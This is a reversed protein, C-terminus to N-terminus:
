CVESHHHQLSASIQPSSSLPTYSPTSHISLLRCVPHRRVAIVSPRSRVAPKHFLFLAAAQEVPPPVPASSRNLQLLFLPQVAVSLGAIVVNLMTTFAEGGNAIGKHVVINYTNVLANKYSKLAKEEGVFAQVTRVNGIANKYSKLAKEEGVFAQVTRVNGIVEEAIEGAKVYSKRVRTILGVAVYAYIGGAISILPVISLTVLSIQWVRAFGIAFGSIFRTIYHMFNGVKESIADQVILIDSTIANIVEGTSAETDFVSIDQDLLSRLYALRM